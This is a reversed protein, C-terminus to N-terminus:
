ERVEWLRIKGQENGVALYGGDTSLAVSSIRGLPTKDTPWNRYLTCSPLHALRLANKKWRSSMVLMQGDESFELQSVPTTLQDFMRVPKPREDQTSDVSATNTWGRRDYLNVVGSSSGIAVWRSGGRCQQSTDGSLAIVTTGVAGEDMWRVVVRRSEIDYESVEGNKGVAAFGNGDKWWAFDAVGGRSDVRCSCIWQMSETSLINICGGGKRSSGVLGMYRGCPSLRFAEMTRQEKRAQGYLARTVKTVVGTALSWSHFYRRRSSLFIRTQANSEEDTKTSNAELTRCFAVTHIPTGKVHLSTLIPNPNPPQPSVHYITITSSPGAALLLPYYPHFQLTDISSPGSGAVDKCRQIDVVEPRLKRLGTTGSKSTTRTLSGATRLLDALPQASPLSDEDDMSVDSDSAVDEDDAESVKRRKRVYKVWEPTPHLREYQRRLRQIYERGGVVDDDETDRLKRLRTNSALSVTIRDDDSDYWVAKPRSSSNTPNTPELARTVSAPLQDAGTDLFFLQFLTLPPLWLKFHASVDEGLDDYQTDEAASEEDGGAHRTLSLDEEAQNRKLSALFGADDGFLAKELRLEIDDKPLADTPPNKERAAPRTPAPM